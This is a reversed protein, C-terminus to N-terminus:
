CFNIGYSTMQCVADMCLWKSGSLTLSPLYRLPNRTLVEIVYLFPCLSLDTHALIEGQFSNLYHHLFIGSESPIM